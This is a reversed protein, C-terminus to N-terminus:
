DFINVFKISYIDCLVDTNTQSQRLIIYSIGVRTLIGSRDTLSGTGLLFTVSVRRGIITRLYGQTYEIGLVRPSGPAITFSEQIQNFESVQGQIATTERYDVNKNNENKDQDIESLNDNSECYQM